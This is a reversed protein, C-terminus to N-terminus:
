PTIPEIYVIAKVRQGDETWGRADGEEKTQVYKTGSDCYVDWMETYANWRIVGEDVEVAPRELRDAITLDSSCLMDGIRRLEVISEEPQSMGLKMTEAIGVCFYGAELLARKKADSLEQSM